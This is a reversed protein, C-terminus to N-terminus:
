RAEAQAAKTSAPKRLRPNRAAKPAAAVRRERQFREVEDSWWYTRHNEIIPPPLASDAVRRDITRTSVSEREALQCKTFRRRIHGLVATELADLRNLITGLLLKSM